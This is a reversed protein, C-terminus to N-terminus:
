VRFFKFYVPIAIGNQTLIYTIQKRDSIYKRNEKELHTDSSKLKDCVSTHFVSDLGGSRLM